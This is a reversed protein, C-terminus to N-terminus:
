DIFNTTGGCIKNILYSAYELGEEIMEKDLGREFRYRADSNIGLKRGTKAVKSPDFLAVELFVNKTTDTCGTESGGMIGAIALPNNKDAIVTVTSDLQYEKKDLTNIKEGANAKRM